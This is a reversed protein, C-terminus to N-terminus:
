VGCVYYSIKPAKISANSPRAVYFAPAHTVATGGRNSTSLILFFDNSGGCPAAIVSPEATFTVPYARGSQNATDDMWTGYYIGSSGWQTVAVTDTSFIAWCEKRGSNWIKYTWKGSTGQEVVYDEATNVAISQVTAALNDANQTSPMTAGKAEATAYTDAIAGTIRDIQSKVSM